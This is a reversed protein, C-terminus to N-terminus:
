EFKSRSSRPRGEDDDDRPRGETVVKGARRGIATHDLLIWLGFVLATAPLTFAWYIWFKPQIVSDDGHWDLSPVSFLAAFFTAPLFAMTMIAVTKMSSSDRKSAEAIKRSADALEAHIASDEHTLLAFLVTSLREAREKLYKLYEQSAHMRKRLLPIAEVLKRTSNEEGVRGESDIELVANEVIFDLIGEVLRFHRVKNAIHNLVEGVEKISVTLSEMGIREEISSSHTSYGTQREILRVVHARYSIEGDFTCCVSLAAVYALLSPSHIHSQHRRLINVFWAAPASQNSIGHQQRLIWLAHTNRRRRDFTWILVFNSTGVYYTDIDATEIRNGKMELEEPDPSFSANSSPFHHFGDYESRLLWLAASDLGMIDVLSLFVDKTVWLSSSFSSWSELRSDIVVLKLSAVPPAAKAGQHVSRGSSSRSKFFKPLNDLKIDEEIYATQAGPSAYIAIARHRPDPGLSADGYRQFVEFNERSLQAFEDM